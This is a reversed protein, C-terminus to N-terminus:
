QEYKKEYYREIDEDEKLYVDEEDDIEDPAYGMNQINPNFEM